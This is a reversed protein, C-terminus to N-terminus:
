AVLSENGTCNTKRGIVDQSESNGVIENCDSISADICLQANNYDKRRAVGEVSGEYNKKRAAGAESGDYNKMQAM